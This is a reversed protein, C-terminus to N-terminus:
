RSALGHFRAEPHIPLRAPSAPQRRNRRLHFLLCFYFWSSIRRSTAFCIRDGEPRTSKRNNYDRGRLVTLRAFTLTAAFYFHGIRAFYFHGIPWSKHLDGKGRRLVHESRRPATLPARNNRPSAFGKGRAGNWGIAGAPFPPRRM